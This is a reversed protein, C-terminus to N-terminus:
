GSIEMVTLSSPAVQTWTTDTIGARNIYSPSSSGGSNCCYIQYTTAGTTAPSDFFTICQTECQVHGSGTFARFGASANGVWSSTQGLALPTAGRYLRLFANYSNPTGGCAVAAIIYIQSSASTPTITVTLGSIPYYTTQSASGTSFTYQTNDFVSQVQLIGGTNNLLPKGAVNQIANVRLISM